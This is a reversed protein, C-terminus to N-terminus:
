RSAALLNGPPASARHRESPESHLSRTRSLRKGRHLKPKLGQDLCHTGSRGFIIKFINIEAQALAVADRTKLNLSFCETMDERKTDAPYRSDLSSFCSQFEVPIRYVDLMYECETKEEANIMVDPILLLVSEPVSVSVFKVASM